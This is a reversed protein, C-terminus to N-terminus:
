MKKGKLFIRYLMICDFNLLAFCLFLLSLFYYFLLSDTSMIIGGTMLTVVLKFVELTSNISGM